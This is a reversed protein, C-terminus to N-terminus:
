RMASLPASPVPRHFKFATEANYYYGPPTGPHKVRAQFTNKVAAERRFNHGPYVAFVGGRGGYEGREAPHFGYYQGAHAAPLRAISQRGHGPAAPETKKIIIGHNRGAVKFFQGTVM